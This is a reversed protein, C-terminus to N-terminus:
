TGGPRAMSAAFGSGIPDSVSVFVVPITQTLQKLAANLPTSHAVICDSSAGRDRKRAGANAAHRQRCFSLCSSTQGVLWGKAALVQEFARTRAQMEADNALGVVIGITPQRTVGQAAASRARGALAGGGLITLFARRDIGPEM